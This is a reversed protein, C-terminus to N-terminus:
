RFPGTEFLHETSGDVAGYGPQRVRHSSRTIGVSPTGRSVELSILLLNVSKRM